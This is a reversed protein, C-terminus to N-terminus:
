MLGKFIQKLSDIKAQLEVTTIGTALILIGGGYTATTMDPAGSDALARDIENGIGTKGVCDKIVVMHFGTDSVASIVDEVANKAQLAADRLENVHYTFNNLQTVKDNFDAYSNDISGKAKALLSDANNVDLAPIMGGLTLNKWAEYSM